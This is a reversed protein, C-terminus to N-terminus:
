KKDLGIRLLYIRSVVKSRKKKDFFTAKPTAMNYNQFVQVTEVKMENGLFAPLIFYFEEPAVVLRSTGEKELIEKFHEKTGVNKLLKGSYFMYSRKSHPLGFSFFTKKNPELEKLYKAIQTSANFKLFVPYVHFSVISFACSFALYFSAIYRAEKQIFFYMSLYIGPLALYMLGVDIVYFPIILIAFLVIIMPIALIIKRKKSDQWDPLGIFDALYICGAPIAWYVYQPLQYKSFSILFMYLFVWFEIVYDKEIRNRKIFDKLISIFTNLKSDSKLQTESVWETKIFNKFQGYASYILLFSFTFLGWLYNSYFFGPDSKQNYM